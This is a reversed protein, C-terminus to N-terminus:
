AIVTVPKDVRPGPLDWADWGQVGVMVVEGVEPMGLIPTWWATIDHGPLKILSSGLLRWCPWSTTPSPRHPRAGWFVYFFGVPYICTDFMVYLGSSRKFWGYYNFPTPAVRDPPPVLLVTWGHRLRRMNVALFLQRGTMRRQLAQRDRCSRLWASIKWPMRIWINYSTWMKMLTCFYIRNRLQPGTASRKAPPRAALVPSRGGRFVAGAFAGSASEIAANYRISAM